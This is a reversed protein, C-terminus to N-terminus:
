QMTTCAGFLMFSAEPGAAAFNISGSERDIMGSWGHGNEVGQIILQKDTTELNLIPSVAQKEGEDKARVLKNEFDVLIFQPLDFDRARGEWCGPGNECGIVDLAACVLNTSGDFPVAAAGLSHLSMVLGLGMALAPASTRNCM